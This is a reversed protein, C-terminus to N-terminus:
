RSTLMGPKLRENVEIERLGASVRRRRAPDASRRRKSRPKPWLSVTNLHSPLDPAEVVSTKVATAQPLDAAARTSAAVM